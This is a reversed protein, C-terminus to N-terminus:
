QPLLTSIAHAYVLQTNNGEKLIFATDDYGIIIGKLRIGNGLFVFVPIKNNILKKIFIYKISLTEEEIM